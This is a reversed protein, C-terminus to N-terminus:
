LRDAYHKVFAARERRSRRLPVAVAARIRASDPDDGALRKALSRILDRDADLGPVEFRAM